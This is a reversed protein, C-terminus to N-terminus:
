AAPPWPDPGPPPQGRTPGRVRPSVLRGALIGGVLAPGSPRPPAIVKRPSAAPARGERLDDGPRADAGGGVAQRGLDSVLSGLFAQVRGFLSAAGIQAHDVVKEGM